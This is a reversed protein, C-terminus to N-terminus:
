ISFYIYSFFFWYCFIYMFPSYFYKVVKSSIEFVELSTSSLPRHFDYCHSSNESWNHKRDLRSSTFYLITNLMAIGIINKHISLCQIIYSGFTCSYSAINHMACKGCVYSLALLDGVKAASQVNM